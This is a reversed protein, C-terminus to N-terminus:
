QKTGSRTSSVKARDVSSVPSTSLELKWDM